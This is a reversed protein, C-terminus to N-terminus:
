ATTARADEARGATVGILELDHEDIECILGCEPCVFMHGILDDSTIVQTYGCGCTHVLNVTEIALTAGELATGAALASFAQRLADESFASGRRFRVESVAEVGQQRLNDLLGTVIAETIDFEHM